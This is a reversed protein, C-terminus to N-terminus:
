QEVAGTIDERRTFLALRSFPAKINTYNCNRLYGIKLVIEAPFSNYNWSNDKLAKSSRIAFSFTYM